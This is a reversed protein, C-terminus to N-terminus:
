FGGYIFHWWYPWIINSANGGVRSRICTFNIEEWIGKEPNYQFTLVDAYSHEKGVYYVQAIDSKYLNCSLVKFYEIGGYTAYQYADKFEDYHQATLIECNILALVWHIIVVCLFASIIIKVIGFIRM